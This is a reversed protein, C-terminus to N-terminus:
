EKDLANVACILCSPLPVDMNRVPHNSISVQCDITFLSNELFGLSRVIDNM